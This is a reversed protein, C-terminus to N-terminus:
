PRRQTPPSSTLFGSKAQGYEAKIWDASSAADRLRFEDFLGTFHGQWSRRDNLGFVLPNDSDTVPPVTAGFVKEGNAYATFNTGDFVGAIHVWANEASPIAGSASADKGVQVNLVDYGTIYLQWDPASMFDRNRCFVRALGKGSAAATMRVWGSVTFDGGVDLPTSDDVQLVAQGSYTHSSATNIRAKGLVGDAAVQKSAANGRPIADLGNPTSDAVVGGEEAMHWVGVYDASWTLRPEVADGPKGGYHMKFTTGKALSPIKVWTLSEGGPNWREIEYPLSRGAGDAFRLEAGVSADAMDAYRFGAPSGEALRVAVPFDKLTSAGTYGSVTITAGKDFAAATPRPLTASAIAPLCFSFLLLIRSAKM